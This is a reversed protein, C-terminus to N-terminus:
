LLSHLVKLPNNKSIEALGMEDFVILPMVTNNPNNSSYIYAIKKAKEFVKYIGESTSSESGQYTLTILGPLSSFWIDSSEKGRLANILLQICLTKSCGPKGCIFMPIKNIICILAAFVNERLANNPAIGKPLNLRKLYEDQENEYFSKLDNESYDVKYNKFVNSLIKIYETRHKKSSLRLFYCMFISLIICKNEFHQKDSSINLIKERKQINCYFWNYFLRFRDVDRLSVSSAEEINRVFNQSVFILECVLDSKTFKLSELMSAIYNKEDKENLAGYDWIHQIMNTPIPYVVHLLMSSERQM